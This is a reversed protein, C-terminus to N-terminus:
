LGLTTALGIKDMQDSISCADGGYVMGHQTVDDDYAYDAGDYYVSSGGSFRGSPTGTACSIAFTAGSGSTADSLRLIDAGCGGNNDSGDLSIVSVATRETLRRITHAWQTQTGADEVVLDFHIHRLFMLELRSIESASFLNHCAASVRANSIPTESLYKHAVLFSSLLLRFPLAPDSMPSALVLVVQSGDNKLGNNDNHYEFFRVILTESTLLVEKNLGLFSFLYQSFNKLSATNDRHHPLLNSLLTELYKGSSEILNFKKTTKGTLQRLIADDPPRTNLTTSSM